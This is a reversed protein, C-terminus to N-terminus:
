LQGRSTNNATSDLTDDEFMIILSNLRKHSTPGVTESRVLEPIASHNVMCVTTLNDYVLIHSSSSSDQM